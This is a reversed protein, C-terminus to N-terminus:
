NMYIKWIEPYTIDSYLTSIPLMGIDGLSLIALKQTIAEPIEIDLTISSLNIIFNSLIEILKSYMTWGGILDFGDFAHVLITISPTALRSLVRVLSPVQGAM